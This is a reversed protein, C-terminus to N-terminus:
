DGRSLHERLNYQEIKVFPNPRYDRPPVYTFASAGLARDTGRGQGLRGGAPVAILTIFDCRGIFATM